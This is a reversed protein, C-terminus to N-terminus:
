VKENHRAVWSDRWAQAHRPFYRENVRERDSIGGDNHRPHSLTPGGEAESPRPRPTLTPIGKSSKGRVKMREGIPLPFSNGLCIRM